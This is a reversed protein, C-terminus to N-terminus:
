CLYWTISKNEYCNVYSSCAFVISSWVSTSLFGPFSSVKSARFSPSLNPEFTLGTLTLNRPSNISSALDPYSHIFLYTTIQSTTDLFVISHSSPFGMLKNIYLLFESKQQAPYSQITPNPVWPWYYDSTFSANAVEPLIVVNNKAYCM